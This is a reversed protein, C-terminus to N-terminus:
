YFGITGDLGPATLQKRSVFRCREGDFCSYDEKKNLMELGYYSLDNIEFAYNDTADYEKTNDEEM